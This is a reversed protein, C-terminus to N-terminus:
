GTWDVGWIATLVGIIVTASVGGTLPLSPVGIVVVLLSLGIKVWESTEDSM